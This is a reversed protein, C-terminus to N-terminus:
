KPATPDAPMMMAYRADVIDTVRIDAKMLGQARYWAIQRDMDATEIRGQADAYPTTRDFEEPTVRAFDAMIPLIVPALPGDRRQEGPGTFADHFDQMGHRYAILFRKIMDGRENTTKTSTFLVSGASHSWIASMEVLTYIDGKTIAPQVPSVPMVAADVTGGLLASLVNSNSQLPKVTVASMPFGYKEAMLGVSYHLATGIQTVAITHGPLDKPSQLGAQWAKAGAVALMGDFGPMEGASSAIIRLQGQAALTYFGASSGSVGFDLDGSAVGVSIPQSSDFFVMEVDLGQAAFYGRALAVPVGAYGSIHSTGVKLHDAARAPLTLSCVLALVAVLVAAIRRM